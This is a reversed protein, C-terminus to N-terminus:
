QSLPEVTAYVRAQGSRDFILVRYDEGGPGEMGPSGIPMGPVSLGAVDPKERLLRKIQEAPVHGEIAYGAVSATHCGALKRPVGLRKREADLNRSDIADVEFGAARLHQAWKNCCGCGATKYLTVKGARDQAVAATLRGSTLVALSVILARRTPNM